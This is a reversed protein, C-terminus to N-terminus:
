YVEALQRLKIAEFSHIFNLFADLVVHNEHVNYHRIQITYRSAVKDPLKVTRRDNGHSGVNSAIIDLHIELM